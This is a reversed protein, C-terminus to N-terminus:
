VTLEKDVDAFGEFFSLFLDIGARPDHSGGTERISHMSSFTLKAICWYKDNFPYRLQALGVDVTRVGMKSLFPGVTSGCRM